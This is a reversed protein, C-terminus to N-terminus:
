KPQSQTRRLRTFFSTGRVKSDTGCEWKTICMYIHPAGRFALFRAYNIIIRFLSVGMGM